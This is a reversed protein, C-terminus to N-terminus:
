HKRTHKAYKKRLKLKLKYKLSKRKTQRKGGGRNASQNRVTNREEIIEKLLSPIIPTICMPCVAKDIPKSNIWDSICQIHYKHRNKCVIVVKGHTSVDILPDFCIPCNDGQGKNMFNRMNLTSTGLIKENSNVQVKLKSKELTNIYKFFLAMGLQDDKLPTPILSDASTTHLISLLEDNTNIYKDIMIVLAKSIISDQWNVRRKTYSSAAIVGIVIPIIYSLNNSALIKILLRRTLASVEPMEPPGSPRPPSSNFISQYENVKDQWHNVSDKWMNLTIKSQGNPNANYIAQQTALGNKASDLYKNAEELHPLIIERQDQEPIYQEYQERQQSIDSTINSAQVQAQGFAVFISTLSSVLVTSGFVLLIKTLFRNFIHIDSGSDLESIFEEIERDINDNSPLKKFDKTVAANIIGFLKQKFQIKGSLILRLLILDGLAKGKQDVSSERNIFVSLADSLSTAGLADAYKKAQKVDDGSVIIIHEKNQLLINSNNRQQNAASM